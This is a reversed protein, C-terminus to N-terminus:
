SLLFGSVTDYLTDPVGDQAKKFEIRLGEGNALIRHLEKTDM